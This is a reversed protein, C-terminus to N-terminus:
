RAESRTYGGLKHYAAGLQNRARSLAERAMTVYQAALEKDEDAVDPLGAILEPFDILRSFSQETATSADRLELLVQETRPTGIM